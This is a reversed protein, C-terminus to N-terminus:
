RHPGIVIALGFQMGRLDTGRALPFRYDLSMRLTLDVLQYTYRSPVVVIGDIGGGVQLIPHRGTATSTGIGAAAQAFFRSPERSFGRATVWDSQLRSGVLLTKTANWESRSAPQGSHWEHEHVHGVFVTAYRDSQNVAVTAELGFGGFSSGRENACPRDFSQCHSPANVDVGLSNISLGIVAEVRTTEVPPIFPLGAGSQALAPHPASAVLWGGFALLFTRSWGVAL